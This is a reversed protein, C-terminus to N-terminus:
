ETSEPSPAESGKGAEGRLRQRHAAEREPGLAEQEAVYREDAIERRVYKEGHEVGARYAVYAIAIVIGIGVVWGWTWMAYSGVASCQSEM